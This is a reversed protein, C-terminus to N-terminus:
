RKLEADALEGALAAEVGAPVRALLGSLMEDLELRSISKSRGAASALVSLTEHSYYLLGQRLPLSFIAMTVGYVMTHWGHAQGSEVAALYRQVIRSDRLPRLRALQLLGMRRSPAAFPTPLLPAALARDQALLERLEGRRARGCAAVIAPLECPLLLRTFYDELFQGLATSSEPAASWFAGNPALEVGPSGIQQLLARFDGLLNEAESRAHNPASVSHRVNQETPRM